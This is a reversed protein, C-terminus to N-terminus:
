VGYDISAFIDKLSQIRHYQEPTYNESHSALWDVLGAAYLYADDTDDFNLGREELKSRNLKFGVSGAPLYDTTNEAQPATDEALSQEIDLYSISKLLVRDVVFVGNGVFIGTVQYAPDDLAPRMELKTDPIYDAIDGDMTPYYPTKVPKGDMYLTGIIAADGNQIDSPLTEADLDFAPRFGVLVYRGTAKGGDWYRAYNCGRVARYSRKWNYSNDTDNVWSLIDRWHSQADNGCTVDMLRDYEQNTPIRMHSNSADYDLM